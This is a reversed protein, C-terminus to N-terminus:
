KNKKMLFEAVEFDFRTDIDISDRQPMIYPMANDKLIFNKELLLKEKNIIYIAGNIRYNLGLRQSNQNTSGYDSFEIIEGIESIVLNWEPPHDCLSVSFVCNLKNSLFLNFAEKIHTANRLPSTPQLLIITTIKSFNTSSLLDIVVDTSSSKDMALNSPREALSVEKNTSYYTLIDEDDSSIVINNAIDSDIAAKVTWDIMPKGSFLLKNKSPLRKSGKRAPIIVLIDKKSM